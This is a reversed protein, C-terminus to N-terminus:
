ELVRLCGAKDSGAIALSLIGVSLNAECCTAGGGLIDCILLKYLLITLTFLGHQRELRVEFTPLTQTLTGLGPGRQTPRCSSAYSCTDVNVSL